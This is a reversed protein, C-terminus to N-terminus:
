TGGVGGAEGAREGDGKAMRQFRRLRSEVDDSRIALLREPGLTEVCFSGVVSGRLIAERLTEAPIEKAVEKAGNRGASLRAALYGMVGGAFSDGAGTPDALHELPYAPALLIEDGVLCLSGHEGKKVIVFRPGLDRIRRAARLLSPEGTFQVAEEDNVIVGHSRAFVRETGARDTEIWLNMSDSVVFPDGEAQALLDLQHAPSGNALFLFPIRRWAEPLRPRYADFIAVDVQITERRTFREFYRGEWSFTRHRELRQLGEAQIGLGAWGALQADSFDNGVAGVVGARAFFRAGLAFYFASGGLVRRASAEPTHITDFAVTGVTVVDPVQRSPTKVRAVTRNYSM